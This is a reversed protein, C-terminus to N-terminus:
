GGGITKGNFNRLHFLASGPEVSREAEPDYKIFVILVDDALREVKLRLRWEAMEALRKKQRQHFFENAATGARAADVSLTLQVISGPYRVKRRLLPIRGGQDPFQRSLVHGVAVDVIRRRTAGCGRGRKAM